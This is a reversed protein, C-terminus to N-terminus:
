KKTGVIVPDFGIYNGFYFYEGSPKYYESFGNELVVILPFGNLRTSRAIAQEGPSICPYVIVWGEKSLSLYESVMEQIQSDTMKRSCKIQKKQKSNLLDTNGIAVFQYNGYKIKRQIFLANYQRKIALRLPNDRVYEKMRTMQEDGSLIRDHYGKEWLSELSYFESVLDSSQPQEYTLPQTPLPKVEALTDDVRKSTILKFKGIINGLHLPLRDKVFIIGHIHDPMVQLCISELQPYGGIVESWASTVMKGLSSLSIFPLVNSSTLGRRVWGTKSQADFYVDNMRTSINDMVDLWGEPCVLSGLCKIRKYTNITIMYIRRATYDHWEARRHMSPKKGNAWKNHTVDKINEM